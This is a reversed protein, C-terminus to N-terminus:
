AWLLRWLYKIAVLLSLMVVIMGLCGFTCGGDGVEHEDNDDDGDDNTPPITGVGSSGFNRRRTLKSRTLM